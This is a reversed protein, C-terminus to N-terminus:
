YISIKINSMLVKHHVNNVDVDSRKDIEVMIM